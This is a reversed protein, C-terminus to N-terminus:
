PLHFKEVNIRLQDCHAHSFYVLMVKPNSIELFDVSQPQLKAYTCQLIVHALRCGVTKLAVCRINVTAMEQVGICLHKKMQLTLIMPPLVWDPMFMSHRPASFELVGCHTTRDNVEVRFMLPYMVNM